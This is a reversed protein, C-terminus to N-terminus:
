LFLGEENQNRIETRWSSAVIEAAQLVDYQEGSCSRAAKESKM